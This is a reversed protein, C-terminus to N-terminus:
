GCDFIKLVLSVCRILHGLNDQDGLKIGFYAFYVRKVFETINRHQKKLIYEGCIYCFSNPSNVCGRTAM